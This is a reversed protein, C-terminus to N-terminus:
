GAREIRVRVADVHYTREVEFTGWVGIGVWVEGAAGATVTRTFSKPLFAFEGEPSVTDGLRPFDGVQGEPVGERFAASPDFSTATGILTWAGIELDTTGFDFSVEVDYVGPGVDFTREIWLKVADTNNVATLRVSQGGASARDRALAVETEAFAGGARCSGSALDLDCFDASDPRWGELGQEFSFFADTVLEPGSGSDGDCAASGLLLSALVGGLHWKRTASRTV